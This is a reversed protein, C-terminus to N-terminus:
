ASKWEGRYNIVDRRVRIAPYGWRCMHQALETAYVVDPCPSPEGPYNIYRVGWEEGRDAEDIREILNLAEVIEPLNLIALIGDSHRDANDYAKSVKEYLEDANM